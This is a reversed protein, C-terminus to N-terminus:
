CCIFLKLGNAGFLCWCDLIHNKHTHSGSGHMEMPIFCGVNSIKGPNDNPDGPKKPLPNGYEGYPAPAAIKGSFKERKWKACMWGYAYIKIDAYM